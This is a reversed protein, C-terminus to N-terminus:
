ASGSVRQQILKYAQEQPVSLLDKNMKDNPDSFDMKIIESCANKFDSYFDECKLNIKSGNQFLHSTENKSSLSLTAKPVFSHAFGNRLSDWLQYSVLYQRYIKLSNLKNIALEFHYQSKRATNWDQNVTDLCKGLFEIGVAMIAFAIYPHNDKIRCLEKIFVQNIFEKPNM